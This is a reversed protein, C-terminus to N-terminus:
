DGAYETEVGQSFDKEALRKLVEGIDHMPTAFGELTENMGQIIKRYEGQYKSDDARTALKGEDAATGADRRRRCATSRTSASTSTTRSSTTSAAPLQRHDQGPHQGQHHRGRLRRDVKLPNVINTITDNVGAVLKNWGGM